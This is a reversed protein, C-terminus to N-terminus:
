VSVADTDEFVLVTVGVGEFAGGDVVGATDVGNLAIMRGSSGDM